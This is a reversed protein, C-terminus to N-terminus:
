EPARGTNHSRECCRLLHQACEPALVHGYSLWSRGCTLIQHTLAHIDEAGSHPPSFTGRFRVVNLQLMKRTMSYVHVRDFAPKRTSM